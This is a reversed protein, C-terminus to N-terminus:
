KPLLWTPVPEGWSGCQEVKGNVYVRFEWFHLAPCDILCEQGWGLGFRVRWSNEDATAEIEEKEFIMRGGYAELIGEIVAFKKALAPTYLYQPTWLTMGIEGSCFTDCYSVWLDYKRVLEEIDARGSLRKGNGWTKVWQYSTDLTLVLWHVSYDEMTHIHLMRVISDRGPTRSNYIHILASYLSNILDQPLEIQETFYGGLEEVKRFALRAADEKYERKMDEPVNFDMASLILPYDPGARTPLNSKQDCAIFITAILILNMGILKWRLVRNFRIPRKMFGGEKNSRKVSGGVGMRDLTVM